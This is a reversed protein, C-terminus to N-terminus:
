LKGFVAEFGARDGAALFRAQEIWRDREMRGRFPGLQADLAEAADHDLAAVQGVTTIGLEALRAAVKPGLGKLQSLSGSGADRGTDAPAPEALPRTAPAPAPALAPAPPVPAPPVPARPTPQAADPVRAPADEGGAVVGAERAHVAAQREAVLRQRKLRAGYLIGIVVLVALVVIWALHVTTLFSATDGTPGAANGTASTQNM